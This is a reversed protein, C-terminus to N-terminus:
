ARTSATGWITRSRSNNEGEACGEQQSDSAEDAKDDVDPRMDEALIRLAKVSHAIADAENEWAIYASQCTQNLAVMLSHRATHSVGKEFNIADTYRMVMDWIERQIGGAKWMVRKLEDCKARLADIELNSETAQAIVSQEAM